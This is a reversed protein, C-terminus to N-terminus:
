TEVAVPRTRSFPRAPARPCLVAAVAVTMGVVWALALAVSTREDFGPTLAADILVRISGYGPTYRAWGAPEGSVMPSQGIGLDLFPLLFALFAGSVNGLLPGLLAGLFGYTVAVLANAAAYWGWQQPEFVTAAVALSVGTSALAAVLVTLLRTAVVVASRQGALALRRDAARADSAIFMGALAALSGVAIPAMTGAHIQAPDVLQLFRRGDERLTVPTRGPPTVKDSLWIFVAPVVVLLAWVAPNRRWERWSMRLGARLQAGISGPAREPRPRRATASTLSLTIFAAAVSAGVWTLSWTLEGPGGHGSRAGVTWLSIFHTPLVRTLASTSGTMTPGFFVDIIWVFLVVMTGNVANKVTAGVVAGVAVYVVAFLVTGVIVRAADTIGQGLALTLLAAASALLALAVGTMLRASVLRRLPLGALVLRRDSARSASVQFYMAVGALFAAAWGATVSQFDVGGGRGGLLRAADALSDAAVAVFAVPVVALLVVNVRNRASDRVFRRVLLATTM